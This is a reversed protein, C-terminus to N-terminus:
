LYIFHFVTIITPQQSFSCAVFAPLFLFIPFGLSPLLMHSPHFFSLRESFALTCCHRHLRPTAITQRTRKGKRRRRREPRIRGRCDALTFYILINKDVSTCTAWLRHLPFQWRGCKLQLLKELSQLKVM